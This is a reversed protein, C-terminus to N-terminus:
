NWFHKKSEQQTLVIIGSSTSVSILLFTWPRIIFTSFCALLTYCTLEPLGLWVLLPSIGLALLLVFIHFPHQLFYGDSIPRLSCTETAMLSLIQVRGELSRYCHSCDHFHSISRSIQSILLKSSYEAFFPSHFVPSSLYYAATYWM